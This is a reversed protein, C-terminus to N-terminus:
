AKRAIGACEPVPSIVTGDRIFSSLNDCVLDGMAQRTQVTASGIHPTLTVNDMERLAQPVNPEDEFVDLGAGGVRGDQLAAILAQDDVVSGRSVNVLVGQPGLANLVNENILHKTAPGGPTICILVDSRKAMDILDPCFAGAAEKASRAHYLIEAGFALARQGITQGIRGYGVIGVTQNQIAQSLPTNGEAAWRGERVYRDNFVLARATAFWLMMASNAVEDNLVDPTHTVVIGKEALGAADIGDYGVGYSAVIKVNPMYDIPAPTLGHHGDTAVADMRAGQELLFLSPHEHDFLRHVTFDQEFRKTMRETVDGIQLLNPKM